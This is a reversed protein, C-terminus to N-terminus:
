SILFVQDLAEPLEGEDQVVIWVIDGIPAAAKVDEPTMVIAVKEIRSVRSDSEPTNVDVFEALDDRIHILEEPRLFQGPRPFVKVAFVVLTGNKLTALAPEVHPFLRKDETVVEWGHAQAMSTAIQVLRRTQEDTLKHSM